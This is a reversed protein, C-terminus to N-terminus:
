TQKSASDPMDDKKSDLTKKRNLFPQEYFRFSLEGMVTTIALCLFFIDITTKNGLIVHAFYQGVMHLLYMGYSIVGLRRIPAINLFRSLFGSDQVVCSALLAMMSLQMLVRQWTLNSSPEPLNCVIGTLVLLFIPMWVPSLWDAIRNYSQRWHLAHALIVGLCIPTFPLEFKFTDFFFFNFIVNVLIVGGAFSLVAAPRKVFKELLPWVLYFQAETSLTWTISMFTHSQIWNSTLTLHYPLEAFFPKATSSEPKLLLVISLLGLLGYYLPFIRLIRRMHFKRLAIDGKRERERLLLTVILFGSLIFFMDVGLFGRNLLPIPLRSGSTHLWIVALISICRFGDLARFYRREKYQEYTSVVSDPHGSQSHTM